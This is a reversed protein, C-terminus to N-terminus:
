LMQKQIDKEVIICLDTDSVEVRSLCGSMIEHLQVAINDKGIHLSCEEIM